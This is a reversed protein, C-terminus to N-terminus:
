AHARVLQAVLGDVPINITVPFPYTSPARDPVLRCIAVPMRRHVQGAGGFHRWNEPGDWFRDGALRDSPLCPM